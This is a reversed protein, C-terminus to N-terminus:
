PAPRWQRQREEDSERRTRSVWTQADEGLMPYPLLGRIERWLRRRPTETLTPSAALAHVIKEVLQLREIPSLQAALAAVQDLTVSSEM